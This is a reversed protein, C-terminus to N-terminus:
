PQVAFRQNSNDRRTARRIVFYAVGSYAAGRVLTFTFVFFDFCGERDRNLACQRGSFESWVSWISLSSSSSFHIYHLVGAGLWLVCAAWVWQASRPHWKYQVCWSLLGAAVLTIGCDRLLLVSDLHRPFLSAVASRLPSEFITTGVIVLVFNLVVSASSHLYQKWFSKDFQPRM